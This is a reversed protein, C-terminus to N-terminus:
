PWCAAPHHGDMALLRRPSRWGHGAPPPTFAMWPWCAVLHHGDMALLRRPSPWGHGAPPPTIALSEAHVEARQLPSCQWSRVDIINKDFFGATTFGDEQGDSAWNKLYIRLDHASRDGYEDMRVDTGSNGEFSVNAKLNEYVDQAWYHVGIDAETMMSAAMAAAWVADYVWGMISCVDDGDPCTFQEEEELNLFLSLEPNDKLIEAIRERYAAEANQWRQTNSNGVSSARLAGFLQRALREPDDTHNLVRAGDSVGDTVLWVFNDGIMGREEALDMITQLHENYCIVLLILAKSAKITDMANALTEESGFDYSQSTRITIGLERAADIFSNAFGAGYVDSVHLQAVTTWNFHSCLHAWGSALHGDQVIVRSFYPYSSESSLEESSSWYSVQPVNYVGGLTAVPSSTRSYAAGILAACGNRRADYHLCEESFALTGANGDDDTDASNLLMYTVAFRGGAAAAWNGADLQSATPVVTDNRENVHFIALVAMAAVKCWFPDGTPSWYPVLIAFNITCGLNEQVFTSGIPCNMGDRPTEWHNGIWVIDGYLDVSIGAVQAVLSWDDDQFNYVDFTHRVRDALHNLI